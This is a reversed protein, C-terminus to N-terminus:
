TQGVKVLRSMRRKVFGTIRQQLARPERLMSATCQFFEWWERRHWCKKASNVMVAIASSSCVAASEPYDRAVRWLVETVRKRHKELPVNSARNVRFRTVTVPAPIYAVPARWAMQLWLWFDEAYEFGPLFGGIDDVLTRRAVVTSTNVFFEGGCLEKFVKGSPPDVAPYRQSYRGDKLRFYNGYVFGLANSNALFSVRWQLSNGIWIDDADLFAVLDGHAQKLGHNRVTGPHGCHSVVFYRVRPLFSRVVRETDDTSGDDVVVVDVKLDNSEQLLASELAEGIYQCANFTPIIVTVLM